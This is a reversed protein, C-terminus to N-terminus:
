FSYNQVMLNIWRHNCKKNSQGNEDESVENVSLENLLEETDVRLTGCGGRGHGVANVVNRHLRPADIEDLEKVNCADSGDDTGDHTCLEARSREKPNHQAADESTNINRTFKAKLLM